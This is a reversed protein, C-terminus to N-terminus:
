AIGPSTLVSPPPSAQPGGRHWTSQADTTQKVTFVLELNLYLKVQLLSRLTARGSFISAIQGALCHKNHNGDLCHFCIPSRKM